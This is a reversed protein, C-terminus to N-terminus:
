AKRLIKPIIMNSKTVIVNDGIKIGLRIIENLNCLSAKKVTSGLITKPEFHAIPTFTGSKMEWSIGILKMEVEVNQPKLAFQKTPRAEQMDDIDYQESKIVLGDIDYKLNDFNSFNEELLDMLKKPTVNTFKWHRAVNFGCDELFKMMQTQTSFSKGNLLQADYTVVDLKECGKGDLRKFIGNGANRCNKMNSFYKDKNKRSLLVEGRVAVTVKKPLDKLVGNMKLANKTVIDGVCNHVLIGNAFYNHTETTIDYKKSDNFIKKISTIKAVM